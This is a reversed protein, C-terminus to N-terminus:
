SNAQSIVFKGIDGTNDFYMPYRDSVNRYIRQRSDVFDSISGEHSTTLLIGDRALAALVVVLDEKGHSYEIMQSINVTLKSCHCLTVVDIATIDTDVARTHGAAQAAERNLFHLFVMREFDVLYKM